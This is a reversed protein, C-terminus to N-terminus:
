SCSMPSWRTTSTSRSRGPMATRCRTGSSLRVRDVCLALLLRRDQGSQREDAFGQRGGAGALARRGRRVRRPMDRLQGHLAKRGARGHGQRGATGTWRSACRHGLRPNGRRDARPRHQLPAGAQAGAQTRRPTPNRWRPSMKSAALAPTAALCALAFGVILDRSRSM